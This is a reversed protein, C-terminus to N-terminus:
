VSLPDLDSGAIPHSGLVIDAHTFTPWRVKATVTFVGDPTTVTVAETVYPESAYIAAVLADCIEDAVRNPRRDLLFSVVTREHVNLYSVTGSGHAPPLWGRERYYSLLRALNSSKIDEEKLITSVRWRPTEMM